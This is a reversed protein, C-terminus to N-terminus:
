ANPIRICSSWGRRLQHKYVVHILVRRRKWKFLREALLVFCQQKASPANPQPYLCLACGRVHFTHTHTHTQRDRERHTHHFIALFRPEYSHLVPPSSDAGVRPSLRVRRCSLKWSKRLALLDHIFVSERALENRLLTSRGALCCLVRFPFM